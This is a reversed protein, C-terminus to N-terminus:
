ARDSFDSLYLLTLLRLMSKALIVASLARMPPTGHMRLTRFGSLRDQGRGPRYEHLGGIQRQLRELALVGAGRPGIFNRISLASDGSTASRSCAAPCSAAWTRVQFRCSASSETTTWAARASSLTSTDASVSKPVNSVRPRWFRGETM